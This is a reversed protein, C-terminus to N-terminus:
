GKQSVFSKSDNSSNSLNDKWNKKVIEDEYQKMSM